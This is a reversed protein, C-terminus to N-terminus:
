PMIATNGRGITFDNADGGSYMIAGEAAVLLMITSCLVLLM